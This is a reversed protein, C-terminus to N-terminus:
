KQETQYKMGLQDFLFAYVDASQALREELSTGMGHGASASTILLVPLESGTAAQLRAIMKRSQMPDVRGDNDGTTMLIAPYATGDHVRHYPSYAFLARFQESDKVTGFETINFAGNPSLEVRLMDYIGVQSVVARFLEPHQTLAAGMLLGGNSGGRIALKQPSTYKQEILYRGCAIFDDFVNQKNLLNGALHWEEGFEGGGRLNAVAYVGGQEIWLRLQDSFGPTMNVSYGGYGYLLTPNQGNLKIGKRRIINLPVKTGDKSVAMERVVETDSFDAPSKVNLETATSEGSRPNFRFWAPPDLYSVNNYLISGDKLPVLGSVSSIPKLPITGKPNGALDFIRVQQPGGVLDVVFLREKTVQLYHIIPNGAPVIVKAKGLTPAAMPLALIKGHPADQRSLLYLKGDQGLVATIVKDSFQTLQTWKGKPDMLYHAFEGGDGNAVSALLYKGDESIQLTIEAIRPFKKGIVYTDQTAATGLRHFYVQQYFNRDEPPREDGQPYRTYWLGTGESNWVADGGGTPFQVRPVVDDLKKGTATAFIHLSGDESGKESLSVAVWKGDLSPVYWDIATQGKADFEDPDLLIQESNPDAEQNMVVLLPHNKPPQDKMAFLHNGRQVLGYYSASRLHLEKLRALMANRMPQRDLYARSRQNQEAVFQKVAPDGADELWRYDDVVEIGHYTDVVPKKPAGPIPLAADGNSNTRRCSIHLAAGFLLVIAIMMWKM